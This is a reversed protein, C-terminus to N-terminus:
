FDDDSSQSQPVAATDSGQTSALRELAIEIWIKEKCRMGDNLLFRASQYRAHFPVRAKNGAKAMAHLGGHRLRFKGPTIKAIRYRIWGEARRRIFSKADADSSDKAKVTFSSLIRSGSLRQVEFTHNM